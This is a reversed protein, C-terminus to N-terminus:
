EADIIFWTWRGGQAAPPLEVLVMKATPLDCGFTASSTGEPRQAAATTSYFRVGCCGGPVAEIDLEFQKDPAVDFKLSTPECAEVDPEEHTLLRAMGKGARGLGLLRAVQYRSVAHLSGQGKNVKGLVKGPKQWVSGLAQTLELESEFVQLSVNFFPQDGFRSEEAEALCGGTAGAVALLLALGLLPRRWSGRERSGQESVAASM